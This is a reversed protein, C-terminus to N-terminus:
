GELLTRLWWAPAEAFEAPPDPWADLARAWSHARTIRGLRVGLEVARDPVGPWNDLYGAPAPGGDLAVLLSAFPHGVCADGWDFPRGDAFVNGDHLDDHQLTAVPGLDALEAIEDRLRPLLPLVDPAWRGALDDFAAGLEPLRLDPVGLAVLEEAHEETARQTQGYGALVQAWRRAAAPEALPTERVTSGGDPLLIWGNEADVAVPVLTHPVDWRALADLLRVEHRTAPPCAKLWVRGAPAELRWVTSWPREKVLHAQAPGLIELAWAVADPPV